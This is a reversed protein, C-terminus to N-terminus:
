ESKILLEVSCDDLETALNNTKARRVQVRLSNINLPEPNNLTLFKLNNPVINKNIFTRDVDTIEDEIIPETTYVITRKQGINNQTPFLLNTASYEENSTTTVAKIPLNLEINYKTFDPYINTIGASKKYLPYANPDFRRVNKTQLTQEYSLDRYLVVDKDRYLGMNFIERCSANEFDFEYFQMGCRYIYYNESDSQTYNMIFNGRPNSIGDEAELKNVWMYPQLGLTTVETAVRESKIQDFLFGDELVNAPIYINHKVSDYVIKEAEGTPHYYFQFTYVRGFEPTKSSLKGSLALNRERYDLGQYQNPHAIFRFGYKGQRGLDEGINITCLRELGEEFYNSVADDGSLIELPTTLLSAIYLEIYSEEIDGSQKSEVFKAGLYMEPLEDESPQATATQPVDTDTWDSQTHTNTFGVCIDLDYNNKTDDIVLDFEFYSQNQQYTTNQNDATNNRFMPFLPSDSIRCFDEYETNSIAANSTVKFIPAALEGAYNSSFTEIRIDATKKDENNDVPFQQSRVIYGTNSGQIRDNFEFSLDVPIGSLGLYFDDKDYIFNYPIQMYVNKGDITWDSEDIRILQTHSQNFKSISGNVQNVLNNSLENVSYSGNEFLYNIRTAEPVGIQGKNGTATNNDIRVLKNPSIITTGSNNANLQEQSPMYHTHLIFDDSSNVDSNVFIPKRKITAGYLAVEANKGIELQQAVPQMFDFADSNGYNKNLNLIVSQTKQSM